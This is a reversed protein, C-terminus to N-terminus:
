HLLEILEFSIALRNSAKFELKWPNMLWLSIAFNYFSPDRTLCPIVGVAAYM